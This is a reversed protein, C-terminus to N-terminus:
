TFQVLELRHGGKRRVLIQDGAARCSDVFEYLTLSRNVIDTVSLGSREQTRRLDRAAKAILGVSIRLVIANRALGETAAMVKMEKEKGNAHTPLQV